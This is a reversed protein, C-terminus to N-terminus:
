ATDNVSWTTQPLPTFTTGDDFLSVGSSDVLQEGSSDVLGIATGPAFEGELNNPQWVTANPGSM